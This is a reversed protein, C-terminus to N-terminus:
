QDGHHSVPFISDASHSHLIVRIYDTSLPTTKTNGALEECLVFASRTSNMHQGMGFLNM